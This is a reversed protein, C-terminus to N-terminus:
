PTERHDKVQIVPLGLRHREEDMERRVRKFATNNGPAAIMVSDTSGNPYAAVVDEYQERSGAIHLTFNPELVVSITPEPWSITAPDFTSSAPVNFTSSQLEGTLSQPGPTFTASQRIPLWPLSALLALLILVGSFSPLRQWLGARQQPLAQATM